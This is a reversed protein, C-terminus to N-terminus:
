RPGSSVGWEAHADDGDEPDFGDDFEVKGALALLEKQAKKQRQIRGRANSNPPGENAM